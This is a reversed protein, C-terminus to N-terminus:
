GSSLLFDVTRTLALGLGLGLLAGVVVLALVSEAVTWMVRRRGGDPHTVRPVVTHRAARM